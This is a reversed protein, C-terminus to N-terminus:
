VGGLKPPDKGPDFTQGFRKTGVPLSARTALEIQCLLASKVGLNGPELGPRGV